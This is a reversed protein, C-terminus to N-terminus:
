SHCLYNIPSPYLEGGHSLCVGAMTGGVWVRLSTGLGWSRQLTCAWSSTTDRQKLPSPVPERVTPRDPWKEGVRGRALPWVSPWGAWARTLAVWGRGPAGRGLGPAGGSRGPAGPRRPSDPRRRPPQLPPPFPDGRIWGHSTGCTHPPPARSPDNRGRPTAQAGPPSHALSPSSSGAPLTLGTQGFASLPPRTKRGLGGRAKPFHPPPQGAPSLSPEAEPRRGGGPRPRLRGVPVSVTM